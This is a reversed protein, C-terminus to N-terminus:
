KLFQKGLIKGTGVDIEYLIGDRNYAKLHGRDDMKINKFPTKDYIGDPAGIQWLIDGDANLRYVNQNIENPSSNQPLELTNILIIKDGNQIPIEM